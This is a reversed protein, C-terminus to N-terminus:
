LFENMYYDCVAGRPSIFYFSRMSPSDAIYYEFICSENENYRLYAIPSITTWVGDVPYDYIIRIPVGNYILNAADRKVYGGAHFNNPWNTFINRINLIQNNAKAIKIHSLIHLFRQSSSLSQFDKVGPNNDLQFNEFSDGYGPLHEIIESYSTNIVGPHPICSPDSDCLYQDGGSGGGSGASGGSGNWMPFGLMLPPNLDYCYTTFTDYCVIGPGGGDDIAECPGPEWFTSCTISLNNNNSKLESGDTGDYYEKTGYVVGSIINFTVLHTEDLHYLSIEGTWDKGLDYYNYTKPDRRVTNLDHYRIIYGKLASNDVNEFFLMRQTYRLNLESESFNNGMSSPYVLKEKVTEFELIRKEPSWYNEFFIEWKIKKDLYSLKLKQKSRSNMNGPNLNTPNEVQKNYFKEIHSFESQQKTIIEEEWDNQCSLMLICCIIICLLNIVKSKKM